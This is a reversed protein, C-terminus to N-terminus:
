FILAVFFSAVWLVALAVFMGALLDDLLRAPGFRLREGTASNDVWQGSRAFTETSTEHAMQKCRRYKAEREYLLRETISFL